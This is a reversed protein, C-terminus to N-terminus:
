RSPPKDLGLAHATRTLAHFARTLEDAMVTLTEPDLQAPSSGKVRKGLDSYILDTTTRVLQTLQVLEDASPM